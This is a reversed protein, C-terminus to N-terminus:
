VAARTDKRRRLFFARPEQPFEASHTGSQGGPRENQGSHWGATKCPSARPVHIRCLRCSTWDGSCGAASRTHQAGHALRTAARLGGGWARAAPVLHESTAPAGISGAKMRKGRGAHIEHCSPCAIDLHKEQLWLSLQGPSPPLPFSLTPPPRANARPRLPPPPPPGAHASPLATLLGHPTHTHCVAWPLFRFCSEVHLEQEQMRAGGLQSGFLWPLQPFSAEFGEPSIFAERPGPYKYRTYFQCHSLHM